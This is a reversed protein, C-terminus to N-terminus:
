QEVSYKDAIKKIEIDIADIQSQIEARKEAIVDKFQELKGLYYVRNSFCGHVSSVALNGDSVRACIYEMMLKFSSKKFTDYYHSLSHDHKESQEFFSISFASVGGLNCLDDVFINKGYLSGNIQQVQWGLMGPHLVGAEETVDHEILALKGECNHVAYEIGYENLVPDMSVFDYTNNNNFVITDPLAIGRASLLSEMKDLYERLKAVRDIAKGGEDFKDPLGTWYLACSWGGDETMERYQEETIKGELGPLEGESFCIVGPLSIGLSTDCMVPYVEDYLTTSIGLFIVAMNAKYSSAGGIVEDEVEIYKDSLMSKEIRLERTEEQYMLERNRAEATRYADVSVVAIIAALLLLAIVSVTLSFRKSM